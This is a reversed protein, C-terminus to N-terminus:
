HSWPGMWLCEVSVRARDCLSQKDSFGWPEHEGKKHRKVKCGDERGFISSSRRESYAPEGYTSTQWRWFLLLFCSLPKKYEGKVSHKRKGLRPPLLGILLCHPYCSGTHTFDSLRLGGDWVPLLWHLWFQLHGPASIWPWQRLTPLPCIHHVSCLHLGLHFLYPVESFSLLHFLLRLVIISTNFMTRSQLTDHHCETFWQDSKKYTFRM